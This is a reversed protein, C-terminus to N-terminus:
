ALLPNYVKISTVVSMDTCGDSPLFPLVYLEISNIYTSKRNELFSKKAYVKM